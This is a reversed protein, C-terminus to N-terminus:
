SFSQSYYPPRLHGASSSSAMLSSAPLVNPGESAYNWKLPIGNVRSHSSLPFGTTQVVPSGCYLSSAQPQYSHFPNVHRPKYNATIPISIGAPSVQVRKMGESYPVTGSASSAADGEANDDIIIVEKMPINSSNANQRQTVPTTVINKMYFPSPTCLSNSLRGQVNPLGYGVKYEHPELSVTFGGGVNKSSIMGAPTHSQACSTKLPVDSGFHPNQHLVHHFSNFDGSQINHASVGSITQLKPSPSANDDKNVILNKGMLRLIPNSSSPSVSDCDGHIPPKLACDASVELPVPAAASKLVPLPIKDSRSSPFNGISTADPLSNLGDSRRDLDNLIMDRRRLLQLEQYNLSVSQSTADKWSCRCPQDNRFSSPGVEYFKPNM